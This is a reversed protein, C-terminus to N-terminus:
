DKIALSGKFNARMTLKGEFYLEVIREQGRPTLFIETRDCGKFLKEMFLVDRFRSYARYDRGIKYLFGLNKLDRKISKSNVGGLRRAFASVSEERSAVQADYVLAKPALESVKAELALKEMALRDAKSKLKAMAELLFVAEEMEGSVVKEEGMVYMGDKRLTPLVVSTIWKKFAKAEPKRSRLILSYLGSENIITVNPNGRNGEPNRVTNREDEDLGRLAETTNGLAVADCVDKAVFWPDGDKMLVRLNGAFLDPNNFLTPAANTTASTMTM